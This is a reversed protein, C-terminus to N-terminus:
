SHKFGSATKWEKLFVIKRYLIMTITKTEKLVNKLVRPLRDHIQTLKSGQLMVIFSDHLTFVILFNVKM